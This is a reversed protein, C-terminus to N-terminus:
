IEKNYFMLFHSLVRRRRGVGAVFDSRGVLDKGLIDLADVLGDVATATDVDAVELCSLVDLCHLTNGKKVWSVSDARQQGGAFVDVYLVGFLMYGVQQVDGALVMFVVVQANVKFRCGVEDM